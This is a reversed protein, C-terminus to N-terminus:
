GQTEAWVRRRQLHVPRQMSPITEAIFVCDVAILLRIATVKKAIKMFPQHILYNSVYANTWTRLAGRARKPFIGASSRRM